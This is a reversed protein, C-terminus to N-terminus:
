PVIDENKAPYPVTDPDVMTYIGDTNHSGCFACQTIRNSTFMRVPTRPKNKINWCTECINQTWTMANNYKLNYWLNSTKELGTDIWLMSIIAYEADTYTIYTVM